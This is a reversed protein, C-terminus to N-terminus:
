YRNPTEGASWRYQESASAHKSASAQDNKRLAWRVGSGLSCLGFYYLKGIM